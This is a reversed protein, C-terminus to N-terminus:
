GCPSEYLSFTAFVVGPELSHACLFLLFLFFFSLFFFCLLVAFRHGVVLLGPQALRLAVLLCFAAFLFVRGIVTSWYFAEAGM